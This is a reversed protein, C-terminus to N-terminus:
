WELPNENKGILCNYGYPSMLHTVSHRPRYSTKSELLTHWKVSNLEIVWNNSAIGFERCLLQSLEAENIEHIYDGLTEPYNVDVCITTAGTWSCQTMGANDDRVRFKSEATVWTM